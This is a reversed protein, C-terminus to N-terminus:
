WETALSALLQNFICSFSKKYRNKKLICICSEKCIEIYELFFSLVINTHINCYHFTHFSSYKLISHCFIDFIKLWFVFSTSSDSDWFDWDFFQLIFSQYTYIKTQIFLIHPQTIPYLLNTQQISMKQWYRDDNEVLIQWLPIKANELWIQFWNLVVLSIKMLNTALSVFKLLKSPWYDSNIDDFNRFFQISFFILM